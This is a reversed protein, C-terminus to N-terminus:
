KYCLLAISLTRINLCNYEEIFSAFERQEYIELDIVLDAAIDLIDEIFCTHGIVKEKHLRFEEVNNIEAENAVVICKSGREEVFMNIVSFLEAPAIKSREIDDFILCHNSGIQRMVRSKLVDGAVGSFAAVLGGAEQGSIADAVKSLFKGSAEISGTSVEDIDFASEFIKNELEQKSVVGFCSVFIPKLATNKNVVTSVLTSKGVGWAGSIMVAYLPKDSKLYADISKEVLCRKM